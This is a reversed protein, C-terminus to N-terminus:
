IYLGFHFFISCALVHLCRQIITATQGNSWEHRYHCDLPMHGNGVLQMWWDYTTTFFVLLVRFFISMSEYICCSLRREIIIIKQHPTAGAALSENLWKSRYLLFNENCILVSFLESIHHYLICARFNGISHVITWDFKFQDNM